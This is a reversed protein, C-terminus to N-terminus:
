GGACSSVIHWESAAAFAPFLSPIPGLAHSRPSCSAVNAPTSPPTRSSPTLRQVCLRVKSAMRECCGCVSERLEAQWQWRRGPTVRTGRRWLVLIAWLLSSRVPVGSRTWPLGEERGLWRRERACFARRIGWPLLCPSNCALHSRMRRARHGVARKRPRLRVATLAGLKAQSHACSRTCERGSESEGPPRLRLGSFHGQM